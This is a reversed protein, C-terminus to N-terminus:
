ASAGRVAAIRAEVRHMFPVLGEAVRPLLSGDAEALMACNGYLAADALTPAQGFLFPTAALTKLTPALLRRARAILANQEREWADVCGAGFKREKIFVYMARDEPKDWRDRVGPSAVRFLMDELPGDCFDAYAWIPGELPSPTLKAARAANDSGLLLHECISRSDPVVREGDVLVPVMVGGSVRALESRDGFPVEICDYELGLLDLVAQVKRAFPSYRFRYLKMDGAYARDPHSVLPYKADLCSDREHVRAGM